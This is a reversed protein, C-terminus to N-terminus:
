LGVWREGPWGMGSRRFLGQRGRGRQQLNEMSSYGAQADLAGGRGVAGLLQHAVLAPQCCGICTGYPACSCAWAAAATVCYSM